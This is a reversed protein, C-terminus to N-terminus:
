RNLLYYIFFCIFFVKIIKPNTFFRLKVLASREACISGGIYGPEANTGHILHLLGDFPTEIFLFAYVRFNSQTPSSSLSLRCDNCMKILREEDNLLIALDNQSFSIKSSPENLVDSVNNM